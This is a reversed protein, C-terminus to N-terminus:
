WLDKQVKVTTEKHLRKFSILVGGKDSPCKILKEAERGRVCEFDELM